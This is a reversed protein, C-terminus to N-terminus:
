TTQVVNLFNMIHEALERVTQAQELSRLLFSNPTVPTYNTQSSWPEVEIGFSSVSARSM